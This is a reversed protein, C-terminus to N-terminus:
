SLADVLKSANMITGDENLRIIDKNKGWWKEGAFGVAIVVQHGLIKPTTRGHKSDFVRWKPSVACPIAVHQFLIVHEDYMFEGRMSEWADSATKAHCERICKKDHTSMIFHCIIGKGSDSCLYGVDIGSVDENGSDNDDSSILQDDNKSIIIKARKLAETKSRANVNFWNNFSYTKWSNNLQAVETINEVTDMVSLLMKKLIKKAEKRDDAEFSFWGNYNFKM